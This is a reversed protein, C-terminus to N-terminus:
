MVRDGFIWGKKEAISMDCENTGPNYNINLEKIIGTIINDHLTGFMENLADSTLQNSRCMLNQLMINSGLNLKTIQNRNLNLTILETNQSVDLNYLLNGNCDLMRLRTNHSVDLSILLNFSCTLLELVPNKSVDLKTIATGSCSFGTIGDGFIAISHLTSADTYFHHYSQMEIWSDRLTVTDILTKDGWDIAVVGNGGLSIFVVPSETLLTIQNSGTKPENEKCCAATFVGALIMIYFIIEKHKHIKLFINKM